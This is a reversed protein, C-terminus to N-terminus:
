MNSEPLGYLAKKLRVIKNSLPHFTGPVDGPISPLRMYLVTGLPSFYDANLFAGGIDLDKMILSPLYNNLKADAVIAARALTVKNQDSTGAFTESYSDFPQQKGNVALRATIVVEEGSIADRKIRMIFFSNLIIDTSLLDKQDIVDFVEFRSMKDLEKLIAKITASRNKKLAASMSFVNKKPKTIISKIYDNSTSYAGFNSPTKNFEKNDKTIQDIKPYFKEPDSYMSNLQILGDSIIRNVQISMSVHDDPNGRDGSKNQLRASRRPPIILENTPPTYPPPTNDQYEPIADSSPPKLVDNSDFTVSKKLRGLNESTDISEPSNLPLNYLPIATTKLPPAIPVVNNINQVSAIPPQNLTVPSIVPQILQPAINGSEDDDDEIPSYVEIPIHSSLVQKALWNFPVTNPLITYESRTIITRNSIVFLLTKSNNSVRGLCVANEQRSVLQIQGKVQKRIKERQGKLLPVLVHDGFAIPIMLDVPNRGGTRISFPTSLKSMSFSLSNPLFNMCNTVHQHLLLTYTSPLQYCLNDLIATARRDITQIYRECLVSHHGPSAVILDIGIEALM